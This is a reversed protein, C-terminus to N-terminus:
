DVPRIATLFLMNGREEFATITFHQSVVSRVHDATEPAVAQGARHLGGLMANGLRRNSLVLTYMSFAGGPQLVRQFSRLLEPSTGVVHMLGWSTVAAFQEDHFPLKFADGQLFSSSPHRVAARDIMALTRDFLISREIYEPTYAASSFAMSGCPCDLLPSDPTSAHAAAVAEGYASSPCGWFLPSFWRSAILWDYLRALRHYPGRQQEPPLVSWVRESLQSLQVDDRVPVVFPSHVLPTLPDPEGIM